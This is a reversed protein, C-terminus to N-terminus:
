IISNLKECAEKIENETITLPPAIRVCSNNYLFWDVIIGKELAAHIVKQVHDFDNLQIALLLGLGRVEKIKKNASLLDTFLKGKSKVRYVLETETLLTLGAISAACSVPHGGFTTIHGLVPNTKLCSMIQPSSIFAGLPMGAGFAKATLLVDPIVNFHHLAYLKGCRGYGTQIEDFVLLAGHQTCLDRVKELYAKDPVICGAEAQVPEMFVAATHEDICDLLEPKNYDIRVIDPMIPRFSNRMEEGGGLAMAGTTAGHYSNNFSIIKTRGTYRRVLKIAGEVAESGSNVFFVSSLNAPLHKALRKALEVQPSLVYEGYVMAHMNNEAQRKVAYVISHNAHGFNSVSIGSILDLYKKGNVDFLFHEDGHTIELAMPFDSTQAVHKLFLERNSSM